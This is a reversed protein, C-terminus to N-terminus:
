TSSAAYTASSGTRSSGHERPRHNVAMEGVRFGRRHALVPIFRHLEGYLAIGGVVERRYAKFGCNIDHLRM